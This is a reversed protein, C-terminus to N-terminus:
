KIAPLTISTATLSEIYLPCTLEDYFAHYVDHLHYRKGIESVTFSAIVAPGGLLTFEELTPPQTVKRHRPICPPAGWLKQLSPKDYMLGANGCCPAFIMLTGIRNLFKHVVCKEGDNCNHAIKFNCAAMALLDDVAWPTGDKATCLAVCHSNVMKAVVHFDPKFPLEEPECPQKAAM